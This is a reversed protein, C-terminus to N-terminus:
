NLMISLMTKLADLETLIFGASISPYFFSRNNRPMNSVYDQRGTLTLYLMNKYSASVNGFFGVTRNEVDRGRDTSYHRQQHPEM